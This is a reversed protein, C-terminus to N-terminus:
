PSYVEVFNMKASSADSGGIAYVKGGLVVAPFYNRARLMSPLVSWSNTAPDYSEADRLAGVPVTQGGLVLMRDSLNIATASYRAVSPSALGTTTWTDTSLNYGYNGSFVPPTLYQRYGGNLYFNNGIVSLAFWRHDSTALSVRSYWLNQNIEYGFVDISGALNSAAVIVFSRNNATDIWVDTDFSPDNFPATAGTSWTNNSHDFIRVPANSGILFTRSGVTEARHFSLPVPSSTGATWSDTVPDYIEVSSLAAASQDVGGFVYIKGGYVAAAHNSRPTTMPAVESWPPAKIIAGDAATLSTRILEVTDNITTSTSFGGGSSSYNVNRQYGLPGIGDKFYEYESFTTSTDQCITTGFVTECGGKAISHGVRIAPLTNYQGTFTNNSANVTESAAFSIFFGAAAGSATTGNYITQPAGGAISGMLSGNSIGVYSWRPAFNSGGVLSKGSLTVPFMTMGGIQVPAGLTLRFVGFDTSSTTGSGQASTVTETNASFEWYTGQQLAATLAIGTSGGGGGGSSGGGSTGGSSGSCGILTVGLIASYIAFRVTTQFSSSFQM